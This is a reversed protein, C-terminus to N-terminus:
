FTSGIQFTRFIEGEFFDLTGSVSIYDVGATTNIDTTQYDISVDGILGNLRRVTITATGANEDIEVQPTTFSITGAGPGVSELRQSRELDLEQVTSIVSRQGDTSELSGLFNFRLSSWDANSVLTEIPQVDAITFKGDGNTDTEGFNNIDAMIGTENEAGNRNFDIPGSEVGLDFPLGPTGGVNVGRIMRGPPYYIPPGVPVIVEEVGIDPKTGGAGIDESLFNEILTPFAKRSYDLTWGDSYNSKPTQWIYNMVSHFNPKNLIHDVGGHMLGLTHGLEHMFTGAREDSTGGNTPWLGLTIFFDNGGNVYIEQPKPGAAAEGQGSTDSPAQLNTLGDLKGMHDAFIAYRYFLKKALITKPLMRESVTGFGGEAVSGGNQKVADFYRWGKVSDAINPSVWLHHPITEDRDIHLSVGDEGDPNNVFENPVNAFAAVVQNLQQATPAFCVTKGSPRRQTCKMSDVEVFVDKHKLNSQPPAPFDIVGDEDIDIGRNEWQDAIADGDTDIMSFESTNNDPDTATTSLLPGILGDSTSELDFTETFIGHGIADAEVQLSRLHKAGEGFGSPDAMENSYIDIEYKVGPMGFLTWTVTKKDGTFKVDTVVPYNQLDNSGTDGDSFTTGPDPLTFAFPYGEPFFEDVLDIGRGSNEFISNGRIVNKTGGDIVIGHGRQKHISGNFAITNGQDEEIGGIKIESTDKVHIGYSFNGIDENDDPNTGIYNGRIVIGKVDEGKVFVGVGENASIINAERPLSGGVVNDSSNFIAVGHRINSIGSQGDASVGIKNGIIKNIKSGFGIQIGDRSNGSIVNGFGETESGVTTDSSPLGEGFTTLLVGSSGNDIAYEGESDTGIYNGEIKNGTALAGGIVIGNLKNGSIINGDGDSDGGIKNDAADDIRVGNLKNHLEFTGDANVGILNRRLQNGTSMRLEIGEGKNGSILNGSGDIDNGIKNDEGGEIFIGNVANPLGLLGIENVGIKNNLIENRDSNVLEIGHNLNGSILNGEDAGTGGIINDSAYETLGVDASILIGSLGNGLAEDGNRNTGIYNGMVKNGTSKSNLIVIGYGDNGSIINRDAVNTGGIENLSSDIIAVGDFENGKQEDGLHNVGIHNAQIKNGNRLRMLVGTFSFSHISLGKITSDGAHIELGTVEVGAGTGDLVIKPTAIYGLQTTGDIVVPEIIVPLASGPLITHVESTPINFNITDKEPTRNAEQIAARLTCEAAGGEITQGTYCAADTGFIDPLDEKSNVTFTLQAISPVPLVTM